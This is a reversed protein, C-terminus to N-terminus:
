EFIYVIEGWFNFIKLYFSRINKMNRSLVYITPVRCFRRSSATRVLVWLRCTGCDINQASILFNIYVGTFGVKVTYFHPKLPILIIYAHKRRSTEHHNIMFYNKRDNGGGGGAVGVRQNLFAMQWYSAFTHACFYQNVLWSTKLRGLFLTLPEFHGSFHQSPRLNGFWLLSTSNLYFFHYWSVPYAPLPLGGQQMIVCGTFENMLALSERCLHMIHFQERLSHFINEHKM